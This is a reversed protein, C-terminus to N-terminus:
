PGTCCWGIRRSQVSAGLLQEREGEAKVPYMLILRGVIVFATRVRRRMISLLSVGRVLLFIHFAAWLGHNGM